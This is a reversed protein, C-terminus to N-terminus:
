KVQFTAGEIQSADIFGGLRVTAPRAIDKNVAFELKFTSSQDRDLPISQVLFGNMRFMDGGSDVLQTMTPYISLKRDYHPSVAKVVCSVLTRDIACSKVTFEVSSTRITQATGDVMRTATTAVSFSQESSAGASHKYNVWLWVGSILTAGFTSWAALKTYRGESM